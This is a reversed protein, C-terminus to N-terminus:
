VRGSFSDTNMWSPAPTYLLSNPYAAAAAAAASATGVLDHKIGNM